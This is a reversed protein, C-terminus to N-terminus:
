KYGRKDCIESLFKEAFERFEEPTPEYPIWKRLKEKLREWRKYLTTKNMSLKIEKGYLRKYLEYCLVDTDKDSINNVVSEFIDEAQLRLDKDEENGFLDEFGTTKGEGDERSLNEVSITIIKGSGDLLDAICSRIIKRVYSLTIKEKKELEEKFLIVKMTMDAFIDDVFDDQFKRRLVVTLNLSEAVKLIQRKFFQIDKGTVRGEALALIKEKM